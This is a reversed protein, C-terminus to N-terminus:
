AEPGYGILIAEADLTCAYEGFATVILVEADAQRAISLVAEPDFEVHEVVGAMDQSSIPQVVAERDTGRPRLVVHPNDHEPVMWGGVSLNFFRGRQLLATVEPSDPTPIPKYLRSMEAAYAAVPELPTNAIVTYYVRMLGEGEVNADCTLQYDEHQGAAGRELAALVADTSFAPAAEDPEPPPEPGSCAVAVAAVVFASGILGTSHM